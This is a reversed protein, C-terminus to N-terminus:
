LCRVWGGDGGHGDRDTHRVRAGRPLVSRSPLDSPNGESEVFRYLPRVGTALLLASCRRVCRLLAFSASRGKTLTSLAVSSDTFLLVGADMGCGRRLAENLGYYAARIEKANIHERREPDPENWRGSIAVTWHPRGLVWRRYARSLGGLPHNPHATLVRLDAYRQADLDARHERGNVAAVACPLDECAWDPAGRGVAGPADAACSLARLTARATARDASPLDQRARALLALTHASMCEAAARRVTAADPFVAVAAGFGATSADTAVVTTSVPAALATHLLPALDILAEFEVRASRWVRV